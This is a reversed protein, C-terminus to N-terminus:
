CRNCPDDHAHAASMSPLGQMPLYTKWSDIGVCFMTNLLRTASCGVRCTMMYLWPYICLDMFSALM